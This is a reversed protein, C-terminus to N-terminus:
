NRFSSNSENPGILDYMDGDLDVFPRWEIEIQDEIGLESIAKELHKYGIICRPCVIGSVIDIKSKDTMM